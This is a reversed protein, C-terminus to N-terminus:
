SDAGTQSCPSVGPVAHAFNAKVFAVAWLSAFPVYGIIMIFEIGISALLRSPGWKSLNVPNVAAGSATFAGVAASVANTTNNSAFVAVAVSIPLM